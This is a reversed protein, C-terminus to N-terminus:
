EWLPQRGTFGADVEHWFRIGDEGLLWCYFIVRGDRLTPFDVLGRQVDRLVVGREAVEQALASLRGEASSEAQRAEALRRDLVGHGNARSALTLDEVAQRLRALEQSLARIQELQVRLWPLMGNAQELSFYRQEQM